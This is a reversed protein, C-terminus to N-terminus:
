TLITNGVGLVLTGSQEHALETMFVAGRRGVPRRQLIGPHSSSADPFRRAQAPGAGTAAQHGASFRTPSLLIHRPMGMFTTEFSPKRARQSALPTWRS